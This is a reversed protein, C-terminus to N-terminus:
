FQEWIFAAIIAIVDLPLSSNFNNYNYHKPQKNKNTITLVNKNLLFILHESPLRILLELLVQTQVLLEVLISKQGHKLVSEPCAYLSWLLKVPPLDIPLANMLHPVLSFAAGTPCM